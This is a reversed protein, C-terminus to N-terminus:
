VLDVVVAPEKVDHSESDHHGQHSISKRLPIEKLFLASIFAVFAIPVATLYVPHLARVLAEVINTRIFIPLHAVQNPTFSPGSSTTFHSAAQPILKDLWYTFRSAFITGLIATGFSGGLSRFFGVLSTATGLDKYDTSNQTALILNQMMMGIGIGVVIMYISMVLYSTSTGILSFLYMGVTLIAGGVIVFMKYRGIKTVIRGVSVSSAVIGIMLPILMLGSMTASKNRGLQLYLPLYIIAGFMAMALLFSALSSISFVSNKFLRLPVLPETARTEWLLFGVLLVGAIVFLGVIESSGWGYTNGGWSLALLIASSAVVLLSAGLYDIKHAIHVSKIKLAASTVILAVIGIPINIYFCWRWSLQDVFFGGILPGIVSAFAFVAGIYGQYRGRQAPAVVDGIIAMSLAMLGGAGLGQLARFAILELMNQSLGTLSSGALFILISVQFTIKRGFLDSLKGYLPTSVTSTLLYATVVWSLERSSGKLDGVITPLATAVITQDLAALLMGLMLGIFVLRLEAKPVTAPGTQQIQTSV